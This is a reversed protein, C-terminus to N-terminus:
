FYYRLLNDLFLESLDPRVLKAVKKIKLANETIEPQPQIFPFWSNFTIFIALRSVKCRSGYHYCAAPDVFLSNGATGYFPIIEEDGKVKFIKKDSFRRVTNFRGIEASQQKDLFVFPGDKLASVNNLYSMLHLSKKDGYDLHWYQSAVLDNDSPYSYFVSISDLIVKGGYYDMAVDLVEKSFAFRFVPDTVHIEKLNFLNILPAGHKNPKLEEVMPVYINQIQNLSLPDLSPGKAYGKEYLKQSITLNSHSEKFLKSWKLNLLKNFYRILVLRNKILGYIKRILSYM